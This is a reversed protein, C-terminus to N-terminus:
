NDYPLKINDENVNVQTENDNLLELHNFKSDEFMVDGM